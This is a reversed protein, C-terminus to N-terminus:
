RGVVSRAKRYPALLKLMLQYSRSSQVEDLGKHALDAQYQLEPMLTNMTHIDGDRAQIERLFELAKGKAEATEAEAGATADLAVLLKEKTRVLEAKLRSIERDRPDELNPTQSSHGSDTDTV